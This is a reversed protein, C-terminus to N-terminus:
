RARLGAVFHRMQGDLHRAADALSEARRRLEGATDGTESSTRSLGVITAGVDEAGRAAQQVNRAIGATAAGQEEVAAAIAEAVHNIRDITDAIAAIAGVADRTAAQVAGIQQSIEATARATQTALSKVEGAVVAFGKGADGARAAEITANLALLNTQSAIDSILGTAQGIREVAGSLSSVLRDTVQAQARASQAIDASRRAQGGIEGVSAALQDAAAAVTQINASIQSAASAVEVAHGSNAEAGAAVTRVTSEMQVASATLDTVIVEIESELADAMGRLERNVAAAQAQESAHIYVETALSMDLFAVKNIAAIVRAAQAPKRRYTDIALAFLRNLVLAYGATYWHPELGIRLHARGIEGVQAAYSADFRGAFVSDLWHKRQMAKAHNLREPAGFLTALEPFARVHAYFEDLLADIHRALVAHFQRLTTITDADISLFALRSPIVPSM